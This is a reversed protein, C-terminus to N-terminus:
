GAALDAGVAGVCALAAAANVAMHRGSISLSVDVSGWPTDVAFSPRALGDLVVHRVRVDCDPSEGFLLTDASTMGTMARVRRDDGNLIAIGTHPLAEILEAKARAVGDIGCVLDSHAQAGRTVLGM